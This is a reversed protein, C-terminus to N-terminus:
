RKEGKQQVEFAELLHNFGFMLDHIGSHRGDIIYNTIEHMHPFQDKPITSLYASAMASYDDVHIPFTLEQLVYGYIFSDMANTIHDAEPYDFGADVLCGITGDFFRMMGYGANLRQMITQAAWRHTLLVSRMSQARNRMEEKWDMGTKPVAFEQIVLDSIGDILDDKNKVHNYLSMAQVGLSAALNRMSLADLGDADAIELAQTLIRERSLPEPFDSKLDKRAM